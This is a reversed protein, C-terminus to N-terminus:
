APPTPSHDHRFARVTYFLAVAVIAAAIFFAIGPVYAPSQPSIAWGFAWTAIIPAPIGALSGLGAYVGQVAGQENPPVHKTIYAQLAPTAIGAFAGVAMIMYVVWTQTALGYSIQACMSITMGVVVARKEGLAPVIRGVLGAQVIGSLVGVFMLSLGVSLPSWHYRHDTYLAWTSFLMIQALMLLFFSGALGLVAPFRNLAALAGIPNARKWSFPRRNEATLSEPLVFYGFIWNAASCGAAVWFPLRLDIEGLLGGLAPGIIFGIGFAAGLMGFAGARKEPPTVDAIYANATALVGGTFGAIIRAIVLWSLTPANAM